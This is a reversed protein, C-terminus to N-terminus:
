MRKDKKSFLIALNNVLFFILPGKIPAVKPNIGCHPVETKAASKYILFYKVIPVITAIKKLQESSANIRRKLWGLGFVIMTKGSIASLNAIPM